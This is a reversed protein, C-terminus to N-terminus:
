RIGEKFRKEVKSIKGKLGAEVDIGLVKALLLTTLIVDAVEHSLMEDDFDKLKSDRQYGYKALVAAALEGVEETLKALRGFVRSEESQLPNNNTLIVSDIKLVAKKLEESLM